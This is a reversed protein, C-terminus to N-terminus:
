SHPEEIDDRSKLTNEQTETFPEIENESFWGLCVTCATNIVRYPSGEGPLAQPDIDSIIGTNELDGMEVLIHVKQGAYFMTEKVPGDAANHIIDSSADGERDQAYLREGPLGKPTVWFSADPFANCPTSYLVYERIQNYTPVAHWRVWLKDMFTERMYACAGPFAEALEKARAQQESTDLVIPYAGETYHLM